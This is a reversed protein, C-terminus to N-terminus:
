ALIISGSSSRLEQDLTAMAAFTPAGNPLLCTPRCLFFRIFPFVPYLSTKFTTTSLFWSVFVSLFCSFHKTALVFTWITTSQTIPLVAGLARKVTGLFLLYFCGWTTLFINGLVIRMIKNKNCSSSALVLDCLLITGLLVM